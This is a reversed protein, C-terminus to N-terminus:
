VCIVANKAREIANEPRKSWRESEFVRQLSAKLNEPTADGAAELALSKGDGVWEATFLEVDVAIGCVGLASMHDVIGDAIFLRHSAYFEDVSALFRSPNAALSEIKKQEKTLFRGLDRALVKELGSTVARVISTSESDDDSDDAAQPQPEMSTNASNGTFNSVPKGDEDLPVVAGQVLFTDGGDVPDLNERIRIENRTIAAIQSMAQYFASRAAADGRLLSDVNHEAFYESQEDMTLLRMCINQEWITLWPILTYQVFSIGLHEINSFTARLLHQLLHPPIGYWRAIEEVGFQRTELFQSDEASLSLPKVTAGGQLIAVKKGTPGGHIEEWEKRFSERAEPGWTGNHEIIVRPVAAGGFWNAGYKEAAIGAGISERAHEIVGCGQMGDSTLISPIHLMQWPDLDVHGGGYENQVRYFMDGYPDRHIAVRAPHIPWLALLPAEPTGGERVIEAFANGWNIQWQWMVSRFSVATMEPNPAVNLLRYAPHDYVKRQSNPGTRRFLPLPFSSGIGCMLRTACWVASYNLASDETVMESSATAQGGGIAGWYRSPRLFDSISTFFSRIYDNM